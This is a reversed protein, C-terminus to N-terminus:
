SGFAICRVRTKSGAGGFLAKGAVLGREVKLAREYAAVADELRGEEKYIVGM